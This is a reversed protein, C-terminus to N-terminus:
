IVIGIPAPRAAISSSSSTSSSAGSASSPSVNGIMATDSTSPPPSSATSARFRRAISVSYPPCQGSTSSSGCSVSQAAHASVSHVERCFKM